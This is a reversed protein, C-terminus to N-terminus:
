RDCRSSVGGNIGANNIWYHVIGIKEKAFQALKEVSAADSVDCQIGEIKGLGGKHKQQLTAVADVPDKIDCIVVWHGRVLLQAVVAFIVNTCLLFPHYAACNAPVRERM